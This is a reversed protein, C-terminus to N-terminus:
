GARTVTIPRDADGGVYQLECQCFNKPFEVGMPVDDFSEHEVLVDIGGGAMWDAASRCDLVKYGKPLCKCGVIPTTGYTAEIMRRASIKFVKARM